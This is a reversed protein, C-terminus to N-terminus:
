FECSARLATQFRRLCEVSALLAFLLFAEFRCGLNCGSLFVLNIAVFLACYDTDALFGTVLVFLWIRAPVDRLEAVIRVSEIRLNSFYLYKSILRAKFILCTGADM